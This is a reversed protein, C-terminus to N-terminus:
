SNATKLEVVLVDIPKGTMNETAHKTPGTFRVDGPKEQIDVTKGDALTHKVNGGSINVVVAAPHEHMPSKGHPGVKFRLVRVYDNELEVKVQKPDVKAADMGSSISMGVPKTKLEIMLVEARTKALDQSAHTVANNFTVTGAKGQIDQTKGDPFTFRTNGPTILISVAAPHSHMPLKGGPPEKFRIVRVQANDIEAKARDPALKVIDQGFSSAVGAAITLTLFASRM